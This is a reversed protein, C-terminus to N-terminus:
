SGFSFLSTSVRPWSGSLTESAKETVCAVTRVSCGYILAWQYVDWVDWVDEVDRQAMNSVGFQWQCKPAMKKKQLSTMLIHYDVLFKVESTCPKTFKVKKIM